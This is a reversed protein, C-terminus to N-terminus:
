VAELIKRREPESLLGAFPSNQRLDRGREDDATIAKRLEPMPLAFVEEWARAYRPDVKGEERWRELKRQAEDVMPRRLRPAIARHYALSRLEPARHPGSRRSDAILARPRMREARRRAEVMVPELTHLRRRGASREEEVRERLELLAPIPVEKRGRESIVVPVDGTAIWNNLATHSVGLLKASLSRSVAGGLQAELDERVAAVDASPSEREARRLRAINELVREREKIGM